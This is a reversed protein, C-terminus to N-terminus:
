PNLAYVTYNLVAALTVWLIYPLLLYAANRDIPYLAAITALITIWLLIIGALGLFPSQLGFFLFSWLANLALQIGFLVVPFRTDMSGQQMWVLYLSIGM